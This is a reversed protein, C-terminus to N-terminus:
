RCLATDLVQDVKEFGKQTPPQNATVVVTAARGDDTVGPVSHYGPTDGGHGWRLGGCSLPTSTLGLGFRTGAERDPGKPGKVTKRMQALQAPKLLDGGILASYFRNLDSPTSVLQGASWMWSPDLKTIDELPAGPRAAHYGRPHAERIGEDGAGPFYTHRLGARDIVRQTIQEAVPRRTVKEILLGAVLYNTNSYAIGKGPAFQAKRALAVDLLDRPQYYTHRAAGFVDKLMSDTYSPLGSTHQLLQRVTM